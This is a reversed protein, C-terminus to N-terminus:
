MRAHTVYMHVREEEMNAYVRVRARLSSLLTTLFLHSFVGVLLYIRNATAPALAFGFKGPQCRHINARPYRM